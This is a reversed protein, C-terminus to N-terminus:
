RNEPKNTGQMQNRIQERHGGGSNQAQSLSRALGPQDDPYGGRRGAGLNLAERVENAATEHM